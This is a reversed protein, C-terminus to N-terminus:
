KNSVWRRVDSFTPLEKSVSFSGVLCGSLLDKDSIEPGQVIVNKHMFIQVTSTSAGKPEWKDTKFAEFYSHNAAPIARRHVVPVAKNIFIEIKLAVSKWGM